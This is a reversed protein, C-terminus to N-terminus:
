VTLVGPVINWIQSASKQGLYRRTPENDARHFRSNRNRRSLLALARTWSSKREAFLIAVHYCCRCRNPRPYASPPPRAPQALELQGTPSPEGCPMDTKYFRPPSLGATLRHKSQAFHEVQRKALAIPQEFGGAEGV